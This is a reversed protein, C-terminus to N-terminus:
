SGYSYLRYSLISGRSTVILSCNCQFQFHNRSVKIKNIGETNNTLVFNNLRPFSNKHAEMFIVYYIWVPNERSNIELLLM